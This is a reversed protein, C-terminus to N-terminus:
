DDSRYVSGNACTILQYGGGRYSSTSVHRIQKVGQPGCAAVRDPSGCGILALALVGLLVRYTMLRDEGRQEQRSAMMTGEGAVQGM